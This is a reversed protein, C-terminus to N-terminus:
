ATGDPCAQTQGPVAQPCVTNGTCATCAGSGDDTQGAGCPALATLTFASCDYGSPCTECQVAGEGSFFGNTCDTTATDHYDCEKGEAAVECM